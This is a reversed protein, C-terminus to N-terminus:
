FSNFQMLYDKGVTYDSHHEVDIDSYSNSSYVKKIHKSLEYFSNSFIGHTVILYVEADPRQLRIAKALEIFTRGGDCIDDVIVFKQGPDMCFNGTLSPVDTNVIEGTRVNRVKNATIVKQIGFKQAVNFIKKQAGADPSVLVIRDQANNKNDIDTLAKKVIDHNNIKVFNDLCAELVDSHPDLVTVSEFKQSNIIPCIVQKLYNADGEMFRRDSRAGMFYPTYLQINQIGTNRLAATACVILELDRFTNLRSKIIVGDERVPTLHAPDVILTVSQQGDPFRNIMFDIQSNEPYALNLTKYNLM